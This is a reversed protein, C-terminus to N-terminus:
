TTDPTLTPLDLQAEISDEIYESLSSLYYGWYSYFDVTEPRIDRISRFAKRLRLCRVPRSIRNFPPVPQSLGRPTDDLPLCDLPQRLEIHPSAQVSRWSFSDDQLNNRKRHSSKSPLGDNRSMFGVIALELLSLFIFLMGSLMWTDIAKVYSVRPLNRIINGFQFTMALLSNVGLM